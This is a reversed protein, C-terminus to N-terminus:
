GDHIRWGAAYAGARLVSVARRRRALSVFVAEFIGRLIIEDKSCVM